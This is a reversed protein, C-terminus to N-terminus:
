PNELEIGCALDPVTGAFGSAHRSLCKKFSPMNDIATLGLSRLFGLGPLPHTFLSVLGTTGHIIASQDYHRMSQYRELMEPNIGHHILCQALTAVDRLGLNFGQGAVPHLTHAANGVFVLPWLIQKPMIMQQLPYTVRKGVRELRGLRYGFARQLEKLFAMEELAMLRNAEKPRLAWVLSARHDTMPLMALPGSSTFREFAGNNHSRTLGINTVIAQQNFLKMNVKLDALRRVTSWSGDAAVILKPRLRQEQEGQKITAVGSSRDLAILEAPALIADQDLLRMLGRNIHQMEVVYGLPELADRQLHTVGFRGQESVHITEIPTADPALLPWLDLQNLIRISAPSLALTRADFDPNVRDCLANTDVLRLSFGRGALALMLTAGTLGGGIILIDIQEETV